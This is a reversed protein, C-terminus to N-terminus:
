SEERKILEFLVLGSLASFTVAGTAGFITYQAGIDV